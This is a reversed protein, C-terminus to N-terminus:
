ATTKITKPEILLTAGLIVVVSGTVIGLITMADMGQKKPPTIKPNSDSSSPSPPKVGASDSSTIPYTPQESPTGQWTYVPPYPKTDEVRIPKGSTAGTSFFNNYCKKYKEKKAKSALFFPKNGCSMALLKNQWETQSKISAKDEKGFVEKDKKEALCQNYADVREKKKRPPFVKLNCGLVAWGSIQSFNDQM